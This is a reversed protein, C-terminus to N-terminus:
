HYHKSLKEYAKDLLKETKEFSICPDTISVGYRLQSPDTVKQNGEFLNSELMMGLVNDQDELIQLILNDWVIEQREFQKNANAHSCDVMIKTPLNLAKLKQVAEDITQSDYNPRERGGRLILHGHSNGKTEITCTHGEQDIGLFTHPYLASQMADIAVQLNGDTSNKFGVPISLGSAMERHTQSETTRAGIAVWSVLDAIYQPVIPDLFETAAPINKELVGLLIKRAKKLGLEMDHHGNLNPDNILGKWGITTRPKEFYVRMIICFQDQMKQRFISLKSAYEIIAKEDHVSCPGIILLLRKDKGNIIDRIEKRSELILRKSNTNSPYAKKLEKPPLLRKTRKINIDQIGQM